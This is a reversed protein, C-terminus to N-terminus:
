AAVRGTSPKISVISRLDRVIEADKKAPIFVLAGVRVAGTKM